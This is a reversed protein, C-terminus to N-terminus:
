TVAQRALVRGEALIALLPRDAPGFAEVEEALEVEVAEAFDAGHEAAVAALYDSRWVEFESAFRLRRGRRIEGWRAEAAKRARAQAPTASRKSAQPDTMELAGLLRLAALRLQRSEALVPHAITQGRSGAITMGDRKLVADLEALQDAIM